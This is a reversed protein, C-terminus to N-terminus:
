GTYSGSSKFIIVTSTGNTTVTPSGTVTGSYSATPVSLIVCGSGGAAPSGNHQGGGGGGTNATGATGSTNLGGPGGGGNGGSGASTNDSGGGGGGSFYVSGSVVQGVSYTTSQAVTIISTTSGSGGPAGSVGTVSSGSGGAGGGGASAGNPGNGSGGPNGQGATGSGGAVNQYAGGGGSGGSAATGAGNTSGGGGGFATTGVGSILSYGGNGGLVAGSGGAAGAAGVTITYVTGSSITTSGTLLGGAGGAGASFGGTGGAGGGGAAILYSGTYTVPTINTTSNADSIPLWGQTTDIFTLTLAERNVNLIKNGVTGEIFLGNPNITLNNTAFTGAYDLFSLQNGSVATSPLTVTIGASTTNVPYGNGVSATFNTTKVSQWVITGSLNAGTAAIITQGSAGLTITTANTQTILNTTNVNQISDTRLISAM